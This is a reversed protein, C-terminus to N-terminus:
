VFLRVWDSTAQSIFVKGGNIEQGIGGARARANADDGTAGPRARHPQRQEVRAVQGLEGQIQEACHCGRMM